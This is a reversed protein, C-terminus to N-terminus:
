FSNYRFLISYVTELIMEYEGVKEKGLVEAGKKGAILLLIGTKSDEIRATLVNKVLHDARFIDGTLTDTVM